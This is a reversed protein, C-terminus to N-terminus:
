PHNENGSPKKIFPWLALIEALAQHLQQDRHRGVSHGEIVSKSFCDIVKSQPFDFKLGAREQTLGYYHLILLVIESADASFKKKSHRFKTFVISGQELNETVIEPYVSIRVGDVTIIANKGLMRHSGIPPNCEESIEALCRLALANNEWKRKRQNKIEELARVDLLSAERM